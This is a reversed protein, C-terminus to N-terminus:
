LRLPKSKPLVKNTIKKDSKLTLVENEKDDRAELQDVFKVKSASPKKTQEFENPSKAQAEKQIRQMSISSKPQAKLFKL